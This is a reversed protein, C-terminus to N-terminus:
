VSCHIEVIAPHPTERDYDERVPIFSEATVTLGEMKSVFFLRWTDRDRSQSYGGLQRGLVVEAQEGTHGHCYPAVRRIGGGYLFRLM